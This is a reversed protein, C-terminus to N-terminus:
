YFILSLGELLSQIENEISLFSTKRISAKFFGDGSVQVIRCRSYFLIGLLIITM